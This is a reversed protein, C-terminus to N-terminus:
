NSLVLTSVIYLKDDVVLVQKNTGNIKTSFYRLLTKTPRKSKNSKVQFGQGRKNHTHFVHMSM